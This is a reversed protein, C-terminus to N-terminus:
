LGVFVSHRSQVITKVFINATPDLVKWPLMGGVAFMKEGSPGLCQASDILLFDFFIQLTVTLRSPLFLGFNGSHLSRGGLMFIEIKGADTYYESTGWGIEAWAFMPLIKPDPILGGV